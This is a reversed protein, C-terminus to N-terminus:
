TVTNVEPSVLVSTEVSHKDYLLLHSQGSLNMTSDSANKLVTHTPVTKLKARSAADLSLTTQSACTDSM